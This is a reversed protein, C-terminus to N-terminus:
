QLGGTSTTRFVGDSDVTLAWTTLTSDTMTLLTTGVSYNVPFSRLAIDSDETVWTSINGYALFLFPNPNTASSALSLTGDTNQTLSGYLTTSTSVIIVTAAMRPIGNVGPVLLCGGGTAVGNVWTGTSLYFGAACNSSIGVTASAVGTLNSGDGYYTGATISSNTVITSSSGSMSISGPTIAGILSRLAKTQTIDGNVGSSARVIFLTTTSAAVATLRTGITTTDTAVNTGLTTLASATSNLASYITGTSAAIANERTTARSIENTLASATSNLAAYISSSSVGIAAEAALARATEVTLASATSNLAAYISTTSAAVSGLRVSLAATSASLATTSLAIANFQPLAVNTLGSGDGFFAGATVSSVVNINFATIDGLIDASGYSLFHSTTDAPGPAPTTAALFTIDYLGGPSVYLTFKNGDGSIRGDRWSYTTTDLLVTDSFITKVWTAGFDNSVYLGPGGEFDASSYDVVVVMTSGDVSMTIDWADADAPFTTSKNFDVGGDTSVWVTDFFDVTVGAQVAGSSSVAISQFSANAPANWTYGSDRSVHLQGGSGVTDVVLLTSGDASVATPGAGYIAGATIPRWTGDTSVYVHQGLATLPDHLGGITRTSGDASMSVALLENDGTNLAPNNPTFPDVAWTIGYDRSIYVDTSEDVAMLTSGDASMAVDVWPLASVSVAAWTAGYDSTLLLGTGAIALQYQGTFSLAMPGGADGTLRSWAGQWAPVEIDEPAEGIQIASFTFTTRVVDAPHVVAAAAPSAFLAAALMGWKM